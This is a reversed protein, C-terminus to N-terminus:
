KMWVCSIFAWWCIPATWAGGVQLVWYLSNPRCHSGLWCQSQKHRAFCNAWPHCQQGHAAHLASSPPLWVECCLDWWTAGLATQTWNRCQGSIRCGLFYVFLTHPPPLTLHPFLLMRDLQTFLTISIVAGTLGTIVLTKSLSFPTPLCM